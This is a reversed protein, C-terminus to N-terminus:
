WGETGPAGKFPGVIEPTIWGGYYFGPQPEVRHDGVWCADMRRPYFAVYDKITEYGPDPARYSWAADKARRGGATVTWYSAVGKWECFSTRESPELSGPAIDAPPIYYTPPSSTECVRLAATTEAIVRGGYEVRVRPAVPEIRPPRPFDWVSVQGPGPVVM